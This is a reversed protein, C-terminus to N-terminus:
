VARNRDKFIISVIGMMLGKFEEKDTVLYILSLGFMSWWFALRHYLDNPLNKKFVYYSNEVVMKMWAAKAIRSGGKMAVNHIVKAKPTYILKYKRSVRYTMDCDDMPGVKKLNEDFKFKRLVEKKFAMNSGQMFEVFMIKKQGFALTPFGSSHFKGNGYSFYLFFRFVLNRLKRFIDTRVFGQFRKSRLQDRVSNGCVGGLTGDYNDFISIIESVYNKDLIMDDDLFLVVDGKANKIGLNRGETIGCKYHIYNIGFKKKYKKLVSKPMEKDSSDILVTEYIPITQIALSKLCRLMDDMRNMTVIVVSVKWDKM